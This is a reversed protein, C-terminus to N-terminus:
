CPQIPTYTWKMGACRRCSASASTASTTKTGRGRTASSTSAWLAKRLFVNALQATGVQRRMNLAQGTGSLISGRWGMSACYTESNETPLAAPLAAAEM